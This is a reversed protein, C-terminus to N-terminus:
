DILAKCNNGAFGYEVRVPYLILWKGEQPQRCLYALVNEAKSVEYRGNSLNV